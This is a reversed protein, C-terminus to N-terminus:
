FLVNNSKFTKGEALITCQKGCPTITIIASEIISLPIGEKKLVEHFWRSMVKYFTEVDDGKMDPSLKGTLLDVIITKKPRWTHFPGLGIPEPTWIADRVANNAISKLRNLKM